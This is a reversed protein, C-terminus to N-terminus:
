HDQRPTPNAACLAMGFDDVEVFRAGGSELARRLQAETARHVGHRSSEYDRITGRSVEAQEALDGQTWGLLGRAARCMEPTLFHTKCPQGM